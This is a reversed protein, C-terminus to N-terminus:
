WYPRDKVSDPFPGVSENFSPLIIHQTEGLSVSFMVVKSRTRDEAKLIYFRPSGKSLLRRITYSLRDEDVLALM